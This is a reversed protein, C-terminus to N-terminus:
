AEVLQGASQPGLQEISCMVAAMSCLGCRDVFFGAATALMQASVSSFTAWSYAHIILHSSILSLGGDFSLIDGMAATGCLLWKNWVMSSKDKLSHSWLFNMALMFLLVVGLDFWLAM